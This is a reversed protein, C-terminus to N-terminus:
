GREDPLREFALVLDDRWDRPTRALQSALEFRDPGIEAHMRQDFGPHDRQMRWVGDRIEVAYTRRVGRSDFYEAVLDDGHERPGIVWLANPFEERTTRTRVLLFREGDLWEFTWIGTVAGEIDPHTGTVQWSGILQALAAVASEDVTM